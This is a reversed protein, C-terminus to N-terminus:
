EKVKTYLEHQHQKLLEIMGEALTRIEAQAHSDLRLKFLNKLGEVEGMMYYESM